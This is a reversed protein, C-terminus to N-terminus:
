YPQALVRNGSAFVVQTGTIAGLNAPFAAAGLYNIANGSAQPGFFQEAIETGTASLAVYWLGPTPNSYNFTTVPTSSPLEYLNLSNDNSIPAVANALAALM